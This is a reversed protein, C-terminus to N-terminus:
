KRVGRDRKKKEKMTLTTDQIKCISRIKKNLTKKKRKSQRVQLIEEEIESASVRDRHSESDSLLSQNQKSKPSVELDARILENENFREANAGLCQNEVGENPELGVGFDDACQTELGEIQELDLNSGMNNLDTNDHIPLM